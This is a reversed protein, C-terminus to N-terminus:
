NRKRRIEIPEGFEVFYSKETLLDFAIRAKKENFLILRARQDEDEPNPIKVSALNKEHLLTYFQKSVFKWGKDTNRITDYDEERLAVLLVNSEVSASSSSERKLMRRGFEAQAKEIHARLVENSLSKLFADEFDM